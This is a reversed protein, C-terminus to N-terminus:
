SWATIGSGVCQLGVTCVGSGNNGAQVAYVTMTLSAATLAQSTVNTPLAYDVTFTYTNDAGTDKAVYLPNAASNTNIVGGSTYPSGNAENIEWKLVGALTGSQTTSLGIYAPVTGTYKVAFVCQADKPSQTNEAISPLYGTSEDGPVMNTIVCNVDTAPSGVSVTGTAFTSPTSPTSTASFLGFTVGAVLTAVAGLTTVTGAALLLRKKGQIRM